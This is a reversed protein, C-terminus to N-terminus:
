QPFDIRVRLDQGPNLTVRRTQTGREPNTCRITHSGPPFSRNAVPSEGLDTGDINVNCWPNAGVTIRGPRNDAPPTPTTTTNNPPTPNPATGPREERLELRAPSVEVTAGARPTVIRTATHRGPAVFLLTVPRGATVRIRYPSGTNYERDGVRVRAEPPDVTASVFGEDPGLPRDRLALNRLEVRGAEGVFTFNEDIYEPHRVLVTHEVGPQLEPVTLPSAGQVDRGDVMVRAGPPTTRVELVTFAHARARALTAEVSRRANPADLAVEQTFPEYGEATLKVRFRVGAGTELGTLEHPSRFATPSDNLWIHAGEPTSRVSIVGSRVLAARRERDRTEREKYAYFGAASLVVALLVLAMAVMPKRSAPVHVTNVVTVTQLGRDDDLDFAIEEARLKDQALVEDQAAIREAFLMRMWEGLAVASVPISEKRSVAELDAQLQRASQYRADRDPALSKMIVRELASSIRPNVDSPRPYDGDTIMKITDQESSGRFLRRGTCLEFLIIGLSFIDSRHDLEEGRAQEPSMYPVKGKIQGTRTNHPNSSRPPDRRVEGSVVDVDVAPPPASSALASPRVARGSALSAKAIGFDVVKVGGTLTVLVNQPSIDRHVVHLPNGRADKQEHAYALGAAAGMVIAIAHELPFETVSKPKMARVISRLDEGQIHEMAIYYIGDAQGVDYTSVINPDSFTMAIRAEQLLMEIFSGDRNLDPLIRKIVLLREGAITRHLALYLEAMGGVALRRMLIYKGFRRPLEEAPAGAEASSTANQKAAETV